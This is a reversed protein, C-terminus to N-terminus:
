HMGCIGAIKHMLITMFNGFKKAAAAIFTTNKEAHHDAENKQDVGHELNKQASLMEETLLIGQALADERKLKGTVSAQNGLVDHQVLLGCAAGIKGEWTLQMVAKEDGAPVVIEVTSTWAEKQLDANAQMAVKACLVDCDFCIKTCSDLAVTLNLVKPLPLYYTKPSRKSGSIIKIRSEPLVDWLLHRAKAKEETMSIKFITHQKSLKKSIMQGNAQLEHLGYCEMRVANRELIFMVLDVQQLLPTLDEQARVAGCCLLGLLVGLLCKKTM